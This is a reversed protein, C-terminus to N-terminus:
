ILVIDFNEIYEACNNATHILAIVKNGICHVRTKVFLNQKIYRPNTLDSNKLISQFIFLLKKEIAKYISFLKVM